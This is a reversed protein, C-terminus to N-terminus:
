IFLIIIKILTDPFNTTTILGNHLIEYQTLIDNKITNVYEYIKDFSTLLVNDSLNIIKNRTIVYSNRGFHDWDDQSNEIKRIEDDSIEDVYEYKKIKLIKKYIDILYPIDTGFNIATSKTAYLIKIYTKTKRIKYCLSIKYHFTLPLEYSKENKNYLNLGQILIYQLYNLFDKDHVIHKKWLGRKLNKRCISM